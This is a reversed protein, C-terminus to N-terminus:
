KKEQEEKERQLQMERERQQLQLAEQERQQQLQHIHRERHLMLERERQAHEERQVRLLQSERSTDQSFQHQSHQILSAQEQEWRSQFMNPMNMSFEPSLANQQSSHQGAFGHMWPHNGQPLTSVPSTLTPHRSDSMNYARRNTFSDQQIHQSGMSGMGFPTMTSMGFPNAPQGLFKFICQKKYIM